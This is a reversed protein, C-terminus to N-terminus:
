ELSSADWGAQRGECCGTVTSALTGPPHHRFSHPQGNGPRTAITSVTTQNPLKGPQPVGERHPALDGWHELRLEREFELAMDFRAAVGTPRARELFDGPTRDSYLTVEYGKVRLAHAALLGAQGAGVIAVKAM